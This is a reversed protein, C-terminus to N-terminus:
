RDLARRIVALTWGRTHELLASGSWSSGSAAFAAAAPMQTTWLDRQPTSLGELCARLPDFPAPLAQLSAAYKELFDRSSMVSDARFGAAAPAPLSPLRVRLVRDGDVAPQLAGDWSKLVAMLRRRYANMVATTYGGPVRLLPGSQRLFSFFLSELPRCRNERSRYYPYLYTGRAYAKGAPYSFDAGLIEIQEAGLLRALSLAAQTINGGSTDLFPFPRWHAALYRSFPHGGAFFIKRGALRSLLPPSALDLVLPIDAPLGSLFHHYSVHQCDLSVVLDPKLGQSLLSPLATDTAILLGNGRLTKLRPLQTELSPGAAAVIARATRPLPAPKERAAALNALTNLFWRRGFAAQVATDDAALSVAQRCAALVAEYYSKEAQFAAGLPVTQLTGDRLPLYDRVLFNRIQEPTQGALIRVRTDSLLATLDLMTMVTRLFGPDAEIIVLRQVQASGESRARRLFPSAQYGGGLGLFIFYGGGAYLRRYRAGERLPDVTSHYSRPREGRGDRRAPVTPGAESKVAVIDKRVATQQLRCALGPDATALAALNREFLTM